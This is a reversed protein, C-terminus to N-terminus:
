CKVEDCPRRYTTRAGGWIVLVGMLGNRTQKRIGLNARKAKVRVKSPPPIFKIEGLPVKQINAVEPCCSFRVLNSRDDTTDVELSVPIKKKLQQKNGVSGYDFWSVYLWIFGSLFQQLSVCFLSIFMPLSHWALLLLPLRHVSGTLIQRRVSPMSVIYSCM